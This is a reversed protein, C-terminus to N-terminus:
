HAFLNDPLEEATIKGVRSRADADLKARWRAAEDKKGWVEYLKVVRGAAESLHKKKPAPIKAERAMMGEYGHLILPEAEAFKQQGLLSGGLQSRTHFTRWDDPQAKERTALCQRLIPEAKTFLSATLYAQSLDNVTQLTHPHNSGLKSTRLRLTEEYMCIAEATRGIVLYADALGNRTALARPHDPGLKTIARKLNEEYLAIAEATRGAM